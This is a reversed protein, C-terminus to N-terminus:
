TGSLMPGNGDPRGLHAYKSLGACEPIDTIRCPGSNINLEMFHDHLNILLQFESIRILTASKLEFLQCPLLVGIDQADLRISVQFM